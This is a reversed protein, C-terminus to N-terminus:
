QRVHACALRQVVVGGGGGWDTCGGSKQPGPLVDQVALVQM